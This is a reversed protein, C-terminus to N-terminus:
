QLTEDDEKGEVLSRGKYIEQNQFIDDNNNDILSNFQFRKMNLIFEQGKCLIERKFHEDLIHCDKYEEQFSADVRIMGRDKRRYLCYGSKLVTGTIPLNISIEFTLNTEGMVMGVEILQKDKYVPILLSIEELQQEEIIIISSFRELKFSHTKWFTLIKVFGVGDQGNFSFFVYVRESTEVSYVAKFGDVQTQQDKSLYTMM